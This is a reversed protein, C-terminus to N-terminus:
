WGRPDKVAAACYPRRWAPSFPRSNLNRCSMGPCGAPEDAVGGLERVRAASAKIDDVDFYARTGRKGPEM